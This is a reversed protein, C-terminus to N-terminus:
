FGIGNDILCLKWLDVTGRLPNFLNLNLRHADQSLANAGM